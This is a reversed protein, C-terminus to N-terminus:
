PGLASTWNLIVTMPSSSTEEIGSKVLFRQGDSTVAYYKQSATRAALPGLIGMDFLPTPGGVELGPGRTDVAAAMLKRNGGIFFLEKRDRGWRPEAGGGTSIQWKGGTPPFPQVYVEWTGSEDSTYAIWRGDPSVQGQGENFTTRLFPIPKMDGSLPLVWLDQKTAPDRADYLLSKGDPFYDDPHTDGTTELILREGASGDSPKVYLQCIGPVGSRQQSAFAIRTGDPSWLPLWDDAEDFTLRTTADRRLDWLWIDSKTKPDLRLFAVRTDDPSLSPEGQELIPFPAGQTRGQRDFWVLRHSV